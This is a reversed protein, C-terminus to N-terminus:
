NEASFGTANGKLGGHKPSIKKYGLAKIYRSTESPLRVGHPSAQRVAKDADPAKYGLAILALVADRIKNSGALSGPRPPATGLRNPLRGGEATFKDRLEADLREATEQRHRPM